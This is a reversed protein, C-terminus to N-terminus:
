ASKPRPRVFWPRIAGWVAQLMTRCPGRNPRERTGEDVTEYAKTCEERADHWSEENSDDKEETEQSHMPGSVSTVSVPKSPAQFQWVKSKSSAIPDEAKDEATRKGNTLLTDQEAGEGM